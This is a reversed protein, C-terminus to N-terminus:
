DIITLKCSAVYQNWSLLGFNTDFDGRNYWSIYEGDTFYCAWANMIHQTAGDGNNGKWDGWSSAWNRTVPDYYFLAERSVTRRTGDWNYMGMRIKCGDWDGCLDVIVTNPINVTTGRQSSWATYTVRAQAYAASSSFLALLAILIGKKIKM